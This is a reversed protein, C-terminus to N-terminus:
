GQTVDTMQRRHRLEASRGGAPLPWRHGVAMVSRHPRRADTQSIPCLQLADRRESLLGLLRPIRFCSDFWAALGVLLFFFALMAPGM